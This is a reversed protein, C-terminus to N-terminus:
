GSADGGGTERSLGLPSDPLSRLPTRATGSRRKAEDPIVLPGHPSCRSSRPPASTTAPATGSSCSWLLLFGALLVGIKVTNRM